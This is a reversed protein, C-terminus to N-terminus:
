NLGPRQGGSRLADRVEGAVQEYAAVQQPVARTVMVPQGRDADQAARASFPVSALRPVKTWIAEDPPAPPFLATTEGCSPCIQGAMNEIGGLIVAQGRGLSDLLRHADRHAVVQPTVVLLVLTRRRRLGFVLQQVDATGPPLDVVLCDLDAWQTGSILRHVLLEAIPAGIGLGQSEGMLFAASALQVGHREVAQLREAAAGRPAFVTLHAAERQRRLGMMHAADPGYLDADVLGTRVGGATLALALNVAATTKGVGGKGSAVAIVPVEAGSAGAGSAGAASAGAAPDGAEPV